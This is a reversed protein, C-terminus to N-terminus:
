PHAKVMLPAGDVVLAEVALRMGTATDAGSTAGLVLLDDLAARARPVDAATLLAIVIESFRGELAEFLFERAVLTTGERATDALARGIGPNDVLFDPRFRRAVALSGVLLDDGAPTLGEGLGILRRAGDVFREADGRRLGETLRRLGELAIASALSLAAPRRPAEALAAALARPDSGTGMSTDVVRAASCELRLAGLVLRGRGERHVPVGPGLGPDFERWPLREDLAVAFPAALPGPGHLTLLRGGADLLNLAREFVSHVRGIVHPGAALRRAASDGLKSVGVIRAANAAHGIM